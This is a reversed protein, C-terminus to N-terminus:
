FPLEDGWSAREADQCAMNEAIIREAETDRAAREEPTMTAELEAQYADKMEGECAECGATDFMGDDSSTKIHPHRPCRRADGQAFFENQM